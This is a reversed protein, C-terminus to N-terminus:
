EDFIRYIKEKSRTLGLKEQIHQSTMNSVEVECMPLRGKDLQYNILYAELIAGYGHGQFEKFVRLLGMAGDYHIGIFGALEGGDFLGFIEKKAFISHFEADSAHEYRERVIDYFSDDLVRIDGDVELKKNELYAYVWFPRLVRDGKLYNAVKENLTCIAKDSLDLGKLAKTKDGLVYYSEEDSFILIDEGAFVPSLKLDNLRYLVVDKSTLASTCSIVM